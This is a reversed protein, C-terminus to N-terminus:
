KQLGHKVKKRIPCWRPVGKKPLERGSGNKECNEVWGLKRYNSYVIRSEVYRKCGKRCTPLKKPAPGSSLFVRKPIMAEEGTEM